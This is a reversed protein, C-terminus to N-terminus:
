CTHEILLRMYWCTSNSELVMFPMLERKVEGRGTGCRLIDDGMRTTASRYGSEMSQVHSRDSYRALSLPLPLSM